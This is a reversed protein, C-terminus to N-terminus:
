TSVNKRKAVSAQIVRQTRNMQDAISWNHDQPFFGYRRSDFNVPSVVSGTESKNTVFNYVATEDEDLYIDEKGLVGDIKLVRKRLDTELKSAAVFNGLQEVMYHSHTTILVRLGSRVMFALAAAMQQQAQPHLHAEPEDIILLGRDRVLGRIFLIIPALETVMSSARELPITLGDKEFEFQTVGGTEKINLKGDLVGDELTKALESVRQSRFRPSSNPRLVVLDQLFESTSISVALQRDPLRRRSRIAARRMLDSALERYADLLGTRGARFYHTDPFHRLCSEVSYEIEFDALGSEIYQRAAEEASVANDEVDISLGITDYTKFEGISATEPSIRIEVSNGRISMRFPSRNDNGRLSLDSLNEADFYDSISQTAARSYNTLYRRTLENLYDRIGVEFDATPIDMSIFSGRSEPDEVTTEVWSALEHVLDWYRDDDFPDYEPDEPDAFSPHREGVVRKARMLAHLLMALYTKGTNSKGVLVTMPKLEINKAEAIPGFNEVDLTLNPGHFNNARAIDETTTM